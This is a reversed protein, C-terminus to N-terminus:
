EEVKDFLYTRIKASIRLLEDDHDGSLIHDIILLQAELNLRSSRKLDHLEEYDSKQRKEVTDIRYKFDSFPKKIDRIVESAKYITVLAACAAIIIAITTSVDDWAAFSVM